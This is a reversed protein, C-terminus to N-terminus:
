PFTEARAFLTNPALAFIPGFLGARGSKGHYKAGFRPPVAGLHGPPCAPNRGPKWPRWGWGGIFCRQGRGVQADNWDEPWDRHAAPRM